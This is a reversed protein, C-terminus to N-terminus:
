ERQHADWLWSSICLCWVTANLATILFWLLEKYNCCFQWCNQLSIWLILYSIIEVSLIQNINHWSDDLNNFNFDSFFLLPYYVYVTSILSYIQLFIKLFTLIYFNMERHTHTYSWKYTQKYLIFKNCIYCNFGINLILIWCFYISLFIKSLFSSFFISEKWTM